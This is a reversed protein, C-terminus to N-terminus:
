RRNRTAKIFLTRYNIMVIDVKDGQRLQRWHSPRGNLTVRTERHITYVVQVYYPEYAVSLYAEVVRNNRVPFVNIVTGNTSTSVQAQATSGAVMLCVLAFMVRVTKM